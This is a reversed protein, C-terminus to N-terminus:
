RKQLRRGLRRERGVAVVVAVALKVLELRNSSRLIKKPPM